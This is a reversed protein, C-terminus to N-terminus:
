LSKKTSFSHTASNILYGHQNFNDMVFQFVKLTLERFAIHYEKVAGIVEDIEIENRTMFSSYEGNIWNDYIQGFPFSNKYRLGGRHKISNAYQRVVYLKGSYITEIINRLENPFFKKHKNYNFSSYIDELGDVSKM